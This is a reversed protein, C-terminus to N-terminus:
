YGKFVLSMQSIIKLKLVIEHVIFMNGRHDNGIHVTIKGNACSANLFSNEVHM